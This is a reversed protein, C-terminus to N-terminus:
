QDTSGKSELGKELEKDPREGDHENDVPEPIDKSRETRM